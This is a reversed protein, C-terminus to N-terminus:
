AERMSNNINLRWSLEKIRETYANLVATSQPPDFLIRVKLYVFEKVLELQTTDDEFLDGWMEDSSSIRVGDNPGYGLQSLESFASNIFIIFDQDYVTYDEDFGVLKKIDNLVSAM